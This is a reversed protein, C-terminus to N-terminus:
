SLTEGPPRQLSFDSFAPIGAIAALLRINLSFV